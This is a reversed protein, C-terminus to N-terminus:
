EPISRAPLESGSDRTDRQQSGELSSRFMASALNGQISRNHGNEPM